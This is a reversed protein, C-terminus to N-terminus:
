DYLWGFYPNEHAAYKVWYVFTCDMPTNNILALSSTKVSVGGTDITSDTDNHKLCICFSMDTDETSLVNLNSSYGNTFTNFLKVYGDLNGPSLSASCYFYFNTTYFLRGIYEMYDGNFTDYDGLLVGIFGHGAYTPYTLPSFEGGHFPSLGKSTSDNGVIILFGSSDLAGRDQRTYMPRPEIPAIIRRSADLFYGMGPLRTQDAVRHFKGTRDGNIETADTNGVNCAIQSTLPSPSNFVHETSTESILHLLGFPKVISANSKAGILIAGSGAVNLMNSTNNNLSFLSHNIATADYTDIYTNNISLGPSGGISVFSLACSDGHPACRTEIFLGGGQIGGKYTGVSAYQNVQYNTNTLDSSTFTLTPSLPMAAAGFTPSVDYYGNKILLIASSDSINSKRVTLASSPDPSETNIGATIGDINGISIITTADGNIVSKIALGDRSIKKNSM